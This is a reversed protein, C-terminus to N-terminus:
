QVMRGLVVCSVSRGTGRSAPQWSIRAALVLGEVTLNLAIRGAEARAFRM